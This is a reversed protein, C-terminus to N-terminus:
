VWYACSACLLHCCQAPFMADSSTVYCQMSTNKKTRDDINKSVTFSFLTAYFQIWTTLLNAPFVFFYSREGKEYSKGMEQLICVIGGKEIKPKWLVANNM